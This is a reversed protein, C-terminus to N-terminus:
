VEIDERPDRPVWEGTELDYLALKLRRVEASSVSHEEYLTHETTSRCFFRLTPMLNSVKVLWAVPPAWKCCGWFESRDELELVTEDLDPRPGGEASNSRWSWVARIELWRHDYEDTPGWTGDNLLALKECEDTAGVVERITSRFAAAFRKRDELPGHVTVSFDCWNAM